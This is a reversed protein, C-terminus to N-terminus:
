VCETQSFCPFTKSPLTTQLYTLSSVQSVPFSWAMFPKSFSNRSERLVLQFNNLPNLCHISTIVRAAVAFNSALFGRLSSSYPVRSPLPQPSPRLILNSLCSKTSLQIHAFHLTLLQTIRPNRAQAVLCIINDKMSVLPYTTPKKIIAATLFIQLTLQKLM